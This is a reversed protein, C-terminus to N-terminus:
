GSVKKLALLGTAMQPNSSLSIEEYINGTGNLTMTGNVVTMKASFFGRSHYEYTQITVTNDAGIVGTFKIEHDGDLNRGAFVRGNQSTIKMTVAVKTYVPNVGELLVNKFQVYNFTGTWTGKMNPVAAHSVSAALVIGLGVLLVLIMKPLGRRMSRRRETSIVDTLGPAGGPIRIREM